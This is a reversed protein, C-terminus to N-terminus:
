PGDARLWFRVGNELATLRASRRRARAAPVSGTSRCRWSRHQIGVTKDVPWLDRSAFYIAGNYIGCRRCSRLCVLPEHQRPFPGSFGLARRCLTNYRSRTTRLGTLVIDVSGLMDADVHDIVRFDDTDPEYRGTRRVNHAQRIIPSELAQRHVRTLTFSAADATFFPDGSVPPLQAPDGIAIVTIGIGRIDAATKPDIISCEDLLLVQGKLSGPAHVPRFVLRPLQGDDGDEERVFHYFASHVTTAYMGTKERVVHAAKGTYACLFAGPRRRAIAALLTTKGTGAEGELYFPQRTKIAHLIAAGATQQEATLPPPASM